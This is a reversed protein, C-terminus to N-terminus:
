NSGPGYEATLWAVLLETERDDLVAGHDRMTAVMDRWQPEGWYGKYADLGGLDHCSTCARDLIARGDAAAPPSREGLACAGLVTAAFVTALQRVCAM